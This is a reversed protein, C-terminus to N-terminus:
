DCVRLCFGSNPRACYAGSPSWLLAARQVPQRAEREQYHRGDGATRGLRDLLTSRRRAATGLPISDAACLKRRRSPAVRQEPEGLTALWLVCSVAATLGREEVDDM